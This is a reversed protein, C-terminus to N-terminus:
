FLLVCTLLKKARVNQTFGLSSVITCTAYLMLVLVEMVLTFLYPSMPDGQRLGRRGQFYGYLSRINLSFSTSSVCKVIWNIMVPHYGFYGLICHLFNWVVTDYAKQIDVKFSCQPTGKSLHYNKV